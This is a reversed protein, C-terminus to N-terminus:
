APCCPLAKDWGLVSLSPCHTSPVGGGAQKPLLYSDKSPSIQTTRPMRLPSTLTLPTV